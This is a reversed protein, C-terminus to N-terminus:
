KPPRVPIEFWFLSGQGQKSKAGIRGGHLEVLHKAISLGVGSSKEGGTPEPSLRAFEQFLLEMEPEPIGVGTDVVETLQRRNAQRTRIGVRGGRPTFKIANSILNAIVQTLRDPDAMTEALTPDLDIRIAINKEAATEEYQTVLSRIIDNLVVPQLDLEIRGSRIAQLDLFDNIISRMLSIAGQMTDAVIDFEEIPSGVDVHRHELVQLGMAFNHLPGRLDHAAIRLFKDKLSSLQRLKVIDEKRQDQLRKIKLQTRVRAALVEFQPPKTVYDNAGLDLGRVIDDTEDLATLMIVPVDVTSPQTRLAKLLAIGNMGPMMVDMLVLDPPQARLAQLGEFPDNYAIATFGELELQQVLISTSDASDDVIVITATDTRQQVEAM